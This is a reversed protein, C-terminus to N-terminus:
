APRRARPGRLVAAATVVVVALGLLGATVGLALHQLHRDPPRPAAAAPIPRAPSSSLAPATGDRVSTVALYPNVVGFGYRPDPVNAPPADATAQLRSRVAAPTLAPHAALMLAVTGTVFPAAFSTGDNRAYGTLASVTPVQVGPAVVDVYDGSESFPAVLDHADTAGVAIVNPYRTSYAAPYTPPNGNQAFNGAAAVLVVGRQAAERVAQELLPSSAQVSVSINVVRAGKAIAARIGRGIGDANGNRDDSNDTQKIPVITAEPAVGVFGEGAVPQAAIISTVMTGHGDCDVTSGSRGANVVNVGPQTRIGKMQPQVTDLGTDIVAVVVGAGRGLTWARQFGLRTQAWPVVGGSAVGPKIACDSARAAAPAVVGPLACCAILAGAAAAALL